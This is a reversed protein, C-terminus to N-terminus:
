KLNEAIHASFEILTNINIKDKFLCNISYDANIKYIKPRQMFFNLIKDRLAKNSDLIDHDFWLIVSQTKVKISKLGLNSLSIRCQILYILNQLESPIKGYQDSIQYKIDELADISQSNSIRKYFKLRIGSNEIYDKPIFASFPTNIEIPKTDKKEEGKLEQIAEKLLDMYLELGINGIHGSQEAGLIDGSGRIELDSTALNLGSGLEAYTQLAKLRKTAIDSLKKTSPIVFYAYAKKDSRGIRGRLQHLQSLGYTDARDIIMTNARPIDIGSEIITTSVLIDFKHKYFDSIRKELEKEALQGHAYIIRASPVLERIKSTYIEIDQVKNHVVFVQGGRSLEKEIALKLTQLDERVIYSKITQRRPPPTKIISLDKIGLFSMQLTRPIPTATLTLTDVSERLLKLKEKHGVGFRQEEDIILLVLDKFKVKESLLKHTGILLDIKGQKLKELIENVQKASKFRSIFDIVIPFDKFREIFSNYHQLALVTTPVLVAVQKNDIIAKFAARMAVETKGFGVDGCVLRDMPQESVMDNIVDDIAKSQDPTEQYKFALSFEQFSHDPPSFSFGKKVKRKAQLELLDFALKKVSQRARSKAAEFKKSKLNALTVQSTKTSYKQLLNLKYVPVYVKDKDQYELVLFDSISGGIELSEMGKYRGVGHDKHLVFDDIELTSLQEAFIDDDRHVRKNKTKVLKREFFDNESLFLIKETEYIFGEDLQDKLFIIKSLSIKDEIFHEILYKAEGLSKDNTYFFYILQNKKIYDQILKCIAQVKPHDNSELKYKAIIKNVPDLGLQITNTFTEDLEVSIDISDILLCTKPFDFDFNYVQHPPPKILEFEESSFQECQLKTEEKFIEFEQKLQFSSFFQINYDELFDLLISKENFFYSIFLPYDEFFQNNNLKKFIQERYVVKDKESLAPRPYNGRFINIHDKDLLSYQTPELTLSDLQKDRKTLLTDKDVEFIEEIMDDFYHIRVPNEATPYIDFVEGKISFTGPEEITPTRKFGLEVLKKALEDHSIIDSVSLQQTKDKFFSKPPVFLNLANLTTVISLSEPNHNIIYNCTSLRRSLNLESPIISSYIESGIDPYYFCKTHEKLNSYFKEAEEEHPFVFLNKKFSTESSKFLFQKLLISWQNPDVGSIHLQEKRSHVLKNQLILQRM